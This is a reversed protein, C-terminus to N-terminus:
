SVKTKRLFFRTGANGHPWRLINRELFGALNRWWRAEMKRMRQVDFIPVSRQREFRLSIRESTSRTAWVNFAELGISTWCETTWSFLAHSTPKSHRSSQKFPHFDFAISGHVSTRVSNSAYYRASTRAIWYLISQILLVQVEKRKRHVHSQRHATRKCWCTWSGRGFDVDEATICKTCLIHSSFALCCRVAWRVVNGRFRSWSRRGRGMKTRCYYRCAFPRVYSAAKMAYDMTEEHSLVLDYRGYKLACKNHQSCLEGVKLRKNSCQAGRWTRAICLTPNVPLTTLALCRQQAQTLDETDVEDKQSIRVSVM